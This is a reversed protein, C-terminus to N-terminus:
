NSDNAAEPSRLERGSCWNALFIRATGQGPAQISLKLGDQPEFQLSFEGFGNATTEAIPLGKSTWLIVSAGAVVAHTEQKKLIQGTVHVMKSAPSRDFRLDVALDATEYLMQRPSAAVSRVGAFAPKAFTDFSLKAFIAPEATSFRATFEVKAMRVAQAPPAYFSEGLMATHVRNWTNHIRTCDICASALHLQIQRHDSTEFGRVFDAWARQSFHEM